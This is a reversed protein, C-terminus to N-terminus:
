EYFKSKFSLIEYKKAFNQSSFRRETINNKKKCHLYDDETNWLERLSCCSTIWHHCWTDCCNFLSNARSTLWGLALGGVKASEVFHTAVGARHVDRGRLRFGTLALFVGLKGQLRPLFHGGGVDPFLGTSFFISSHLLHTAERCPWWTPSERPVPRHLLASSSWINIIRNKGIVIIWPLYNSM